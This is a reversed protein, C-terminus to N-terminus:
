LMKCFISLVLILALGAARPPVIRVIGGLGFDVGVFVFWLIM